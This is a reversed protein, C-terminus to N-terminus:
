PRSRSCSSGRNERLCAGCPTGFHDWVFFTEWRAAEAARTLRVAVRPDAYEGLNGTVIGYRM